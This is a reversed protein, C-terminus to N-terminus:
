MASKLTALKEILKYLIKKTLIIEKEHWEIMRLREAEAKLQHTNCMNSDDIRQKRCYVYRVVDYKLDDVNPVGPTYDNTLESKRCTVNYKCYNRVEDVVENCGHELCHPKGHNICNRTNCEIKKRRTLKAYSSDTHAGPYNCMWAGLHKDYTVIPNYTNSCGPVECRPKIHNM